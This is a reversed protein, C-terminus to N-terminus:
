RTRSHPTGSGDHILAASGFGVRRRYQLFDPHRMPCDSDMVVKPHDAAVRQTAPKLAFRGDERRVFVPFKICFVAVRDRGEQTVKMAACGDAHHRVIRSERAMGISL